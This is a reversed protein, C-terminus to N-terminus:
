KSTTSTTTDSSKSDKSKASANSAAVNDASALTPEQPADVVVETVKDKDDLEAPNYDDLSVNSRAYAEQAAKALEPDTNAM